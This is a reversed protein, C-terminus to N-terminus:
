ALQAKRGQDIGGSGKTEEANNIITIARSATVMPPILVYRSTIGKARILKLVFDPGPINASNSQQPFYVSFVAQTLSAVEM